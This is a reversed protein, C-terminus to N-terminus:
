QIGSCARPVKLAIFSRGISGATRHAGVTSHWYAWGRQFEQGVGGDAYKVPPDTAPGLIGGTGGTSAFLAALSPDVAPASTSGFWDTFMRWFNRNGYRLLRRRHRLPERTSRREAPVAHLPLPGRDGPEPHLGALLRLRQEPAVPDHQVSRGSLRTAPAGPVEQVALGRQLGSQLLRLLGHRLRRHRPMRLGNGVPVPPGVALHRHRPGAGERAARHDCPSQNRLRARGQLHDARRERERRRRLGHMRRQPGAAVDDVASLGEPLRLGVRCTPVRANLFSQIQAVTM